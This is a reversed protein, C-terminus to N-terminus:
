KKGPIEQKPEMKIEPPFAPFQEPKPKLPIEPKPQPTKQPPPAPIKGPHDDHAKEPMDPKRFPRTEPFWAKQMTSVTSEVSRLTQQNKTISKEVDNIRESIITLQEKPIPINNILATLNAETTQMNQRLEKVGKELELYAGVKIKSYQSWLILVTALGVMVLDTAHIVKPTRILVIAIVLLILASGAAVGVWILTTGM